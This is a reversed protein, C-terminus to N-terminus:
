EDEFFNFQQITYDKNNGKVVRQWKSSRGKGLSIIMGNDRMRKLTRDITTDSVNQNQKRVDEKTFVEPLKLITNEVSETKKLSLEFEYINATENLKIYATEIVEMILRFLADTQPYGSDWYYRAQDLAKEWADKKTILIDFFSVFKFVSFHKAILSYLILMSVLNSNSTLLDMSLFDIYLNAILQVLEYKQNRLNKNFLEFLDGLLYKKSSQRSTNLLNISSNSQKEFSIKYTNKSLIKVMEKIENEILEFDDAKLNIQTIVKKLNNLFVENKNKPVIAKKALLKIRSETLDFNFFLAANVIDTEITNKQFSLLDKHFLTQYYYAKGKSEYLSLLRLVLDNSIIIRDMNTLAKM